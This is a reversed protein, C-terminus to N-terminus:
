RHCCLMQQINMRMLPKQMPSFCSLRAYGNASLCPAVSSFEENCNAPLCPTVSFEENRDSQLRSNVSSLRANHDSQLRPNITNAAPQRTVTAVNSNVGSLGMMKPTSNKRPLAMNSVVNINGNRRRQEPLLPNSAALRSNKRNRLILSSDRPKSPM